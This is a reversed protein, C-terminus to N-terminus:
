ESHPKHSKVWYNSAPRERVLAV